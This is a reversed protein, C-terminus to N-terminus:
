DDVAPADSASKKAAQLHVDSGNYAWFEIRRNYFQGHPTSNEAIPQTAGMGSTRLQQIPVGQSVWYTRVADARQQSLAMNYAVNGVADTFGRIDVVLHPQQRLWGVVPKLITLNEVPLRSQHPAFNIIQTNLVRMIDAPRVGTAPLAALLRQAALLRRHTEAAENIPQLVTLGYHQGFQQQLATSVQTTAEPTAAGVTIGAFVHNGETASVGESHITLVVNPQGKVVQLLASLTSSTIWQQQYAADIVVHCEALSEAYAHDVRANIAQATVLDGMSGSCSQLQGDADTVLTLFSAYTPLSMATPPTLVADTVPPVILPQVPPVVVQAVPANRLAMRSTWGLVVVGGVLLALALPQLVMSEAQGLQTLLGRKSLSLFRGSVLNPRDSPRRRMIDFELAM